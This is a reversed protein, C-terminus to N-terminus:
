DEMVATIAFDPATGVQMAFLAFQAAPQPRSILYGQLMDCGVTHLFGRQAETEVGEAVVRIGMAAALQVVAQVLVRDDEDGPLDRVFSRDIKVKSPRLRKLYALSSYGTGFDDVALRLGLGHLHEVIRQTTDTDTMLVSETIEIELEHPLVDFDAMARTLTDVLRHHRFELASVNVAVTGFPVRDRKWAAIQACASRVTWAGLENILGCQEAAGIFQLPSVMGRDPHHWRILAECGLLQGSDCAVQPQYHLEFQGEALARKLEQELQATAQLRSNFEPRFFVCRARGLGKAAYMATDAHRILAEPEIGDGPFLSIGISASVAVPRFQILVPAELAKLLRDATAAVEDTASADHLLVVFEDGSYRCVVDAARLTDRMRSSLTELLTDGAAHGITDNVSKFRDLDIFLLALGRRDRRASTVAAALLAQFLTRNPLGTLGDHLAIKELDAQKRELQGFLDGVRAHVDNLHCGLENLEDRRNWVMPEVTDRSALASAQRKLREIPLLLRRHLVAMLVLGSMMVQLAALLLTARRREAIARDIQGPDFWLELEGLPVGERAVTAHLVPGLDPVHNPRALQLPRTLPRRETVRVAVVAPDAMASRAVAAVAGPDISWLPEVLAAATMGLVAQRSQALLQEQADHTFRQELHWGAFTPLLVAGAIALLM